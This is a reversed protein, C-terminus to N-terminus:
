SAPTDAQQDANSTKEKVKIYTYVSNDYFVPLRYPSLKVYFGISANDSTAITFATYFVDNYKIPSIFDNGWAVSSNYIDYFNFHFNGWGPPIIATLDNTNVELEWRQTTLIESDIDFLLIGRGFSGGAWGFMFMYGNAYQLPNWGYGYITDISPIIWGYNTPTAPDANKIIKTSINSGSITYAGINKTMGDSSYQSFISIYKNHEYIAFAASRYNTSGLSIPGIHTWTDTPNTAELINITAGNSENPNGTCFFSFGNPRRIFRQRIGYKTLHIKDIAKGTTTPVSSGLNAYWPGTADTGFMWVTGYYKEIHHVCTTGASDSVFDIQKWNSTTLKNSILMSLTSSNSRGMIIWYTDIHGVWLFGSYDNPTNMVGLTINKSPTYQTKLGNTSYFVSGGHTAWLISDENQVYSMVNLISIPFKDGTNPDISNPDAQGMNIMTPMKPAIKALEPYDTPSYFDGNCLAWNDGLDTRWTSVIDGVKYNVDFIKEYSTNYKLFPATVVKGDTGADIDEQTAIDTQKLCNNIQNQLNTVIDDSLQAKLNDFWINFQSEWNAFLTSIDVTELIGTVFPCPEQGVTIEIDAAVIEAAGPNVKIYSLPYQHIFETNVLEPKVPNSAPTGEVVKITNVRGYVDASENVELLILDYRTLVPHSPSINFIIPTTNLNWTHNFWAKGSGVVVEMPLEGVTTFFKNGISAFVGDKIIGDFIKSFHTANYKRDGNISNYFGYEFAM